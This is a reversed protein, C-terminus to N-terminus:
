ATGKECSRPFLLARSRIRSPANYWAGKQVYAAGTTRSEGPQGVLCFLGREIDVPRLRMQLHSALSFCTDVWWDFLDAGPSLDWFCIRRVTIWSNHRDRVFIWHAKNRTDNGLALRLLRRHRTSLRSALPLM